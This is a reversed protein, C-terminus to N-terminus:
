GNGIQSTAVNKEVQLSTSLHGYLLDNYQVNQYIDPSLIFAACRVIDTWFKWMDQYSDNLKAVIDPMLEATVKDV